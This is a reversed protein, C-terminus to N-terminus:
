NEEYPFLAGCEPCEIQQSEKLELIQAAAEAVQDAKRESNKKLQKKRHTLEEALEVAKEIKQMEERVSTAKSLLPSVKTLHNSKEVKKLLSKRREVLLSVRANDKELETINQQLEAAQTLLKTAKPLGKLKEIEATLSSHQKSLEKGRKISNSLKTTEQELLQVQHFLKEAEKLKDYPKLQERLSEVLAEQREKEKKWYTIESNAAKLTTDIKDMGSVKNLERGRESPSDFMLFARDIQTQFNTSGMNLAQEVEEPVGTGANWEGIPKGKYILMYQNETETKIRSIEYGDKTTVSAISDGDWHNPRM